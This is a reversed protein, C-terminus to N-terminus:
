KDYDATTYKANQKFPTSACRAGGLGLDAILKLAYKKQHLVIGEKSCVVEIGLFYRLHGLDKMKFNLHLIGKLEAVMGGDNRTILLDDVYILLLVIKDGKVKTFLSYDHLSQSKSEGQSRFGEPVSMYVEEHLDGQLFANFVDMQFLPWNFMAALSIIIRVTVQKVVLSFTDYFDIWEHQNYGKAVLRAKFTGNAELAQIEQQMAEIWRKDSIAMQYTQPEIISSLSLAFMRSHYPLHAYSISNSILYTGILLTTSSSPNTSCVFDSLWSPPKFVRSFRRLPPLSSATLSAIPAPSDSIPVCQPTFPEQLAEHVPIIPIYLFDYDLELSSSSIPFLPYSKALTTSYGMFVSPIAKSTFKDNNNLVTALCLYGFVRHYSLDPVRKHLMEFPSKHSQFKLACAVNLLHKHKCEAVGNQQPTHVCSSQHVIGTSSQISQNKPSSFTPSHFTYLSGKVRGIGMMKGSCLDHLVKSLTLLPTLSYTGVHAIKTTKGNSFQVFSPSDCEAPSSLYELDFTMHNTVGTDLIWAQSSPGFSTGAMHASAQVGSRKGLLELISGVSVFNLGTDIIIASNASTGEKKTFKFKAPYSILKYCTEKKHGKIHCYDCTRSKSQVPQNFAGSYLATSESVLSVKEANHRQGEEQILLSYAQNVSPLPKM